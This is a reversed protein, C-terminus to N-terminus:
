CLILDSTREPRPNESGRGSYFLPVGNPYVKYHRRHYTSISLDDITMRVCCWEEYCGWTPSGTRGHPPCFANANQSGAKGWTREPRPNESGRGSYFFPYGM